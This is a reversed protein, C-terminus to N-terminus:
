VAAAPAGLADATLEAHGLHQYLEELVHVILSADSADEELLLGRGGAADNGEGAELRALLASARELTADVMAHLEVVNAASVFEGDRDRDTPEGLGIHGLWFETVGCCHAILSAVSNTSPGHPELNAREDGLRDAVDLLQRFAHRLYREATAASLEM